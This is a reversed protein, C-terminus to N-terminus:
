HVIYHNFSITESAERVVFQYQIHVVFRVKAQSKIVLQTKGEIRGYNSKLTRNVGRPWRLTFIFWTLDVFGIGVCGYLLVYTSLSWVCTKLSNTWDDFMGDLNNCSYLQRQRCLNIIKDAGYDYDIKWDKWVTCFTCGSSCVFNGSLVTSNLAM